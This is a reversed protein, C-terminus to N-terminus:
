ACCGPACCAQAKEETGAALPKRARVFAGMFRGDVEPAIADADMGAGELFARADEARYVRTPEIEVDEFGVETLLRRFEGEELAGAVCGVWLEMSRRMEAPVEGRVVVDSVAFRGGPKLVRFAERLVRPKDASLNIVCNSIVVDVAADPLPVEEIHGKLFEVNEVGAERQNRRALELMEDTMDLGFARGTPGVRRASLLVDIGGGSGLDLVTEGENLQALATPNGCGLSALVAQEPLGATQADDYLNSTIPDCSGNFAAGGCCSSGGGAAVRLAAEGYKERVTARIDTTSM